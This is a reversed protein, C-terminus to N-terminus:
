MCTTTQTTIYLGDGKPNGLTAPNLPSANSTHVGDCYTGLSTSLGELHNTASLPIHLPLRAHQALCSDVDIYEMDKKVQLSM